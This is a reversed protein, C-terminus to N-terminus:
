VNYISACVYQVNICVRVCVRLFIDLIGGSVGALNNELETQCGHLKSLRTLVAMPIPCPLAWNTVSILVITIIYRLLFLSMVLGGEWLDSVTSHGM